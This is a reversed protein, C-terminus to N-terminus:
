GPRLADTSLTGGRRQDNEDRAKKGLKDGDVCSSKRLLLVPSCWWM